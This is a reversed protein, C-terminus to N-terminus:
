KKKLPEFITSMKNEFFRPGSELPHSVKFIDFLFLLKEIDPAQPKQKKRKQQKEQKQEITIWRHRYFILFHLFIYKKLTQPKNKKQQKEQKQEKYDM